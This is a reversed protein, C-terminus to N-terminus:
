RKAAVCYHDQFIEVNKVNSDTMYEKKILLLLNSLFTTKNLFINLLILFIYIIIFDNLQFIKIFHMKLLTSHM